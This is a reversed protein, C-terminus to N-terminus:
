SGSAPVAAPDEVNDASSKKEWLTKGGGREKGIEGARLAIGLLSHGGRELITQRSM